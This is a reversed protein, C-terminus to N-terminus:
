VEIGFAARIVYGLGFSFAAVGCSLGLMELFRSRFPYGKAVAMYFTFLLIILVANAMSIGLCAYPNRLIAYPAVLLFVTAIYAMGTYLASRLPTQRESNEARQSLFESAAMSLSASVGTVVGAAAIIETRQFAFTFGALAGTLEVLADNLGLVVSSLYRLREEDIMDLLSNEHEEEERAIKALEPIKEAARRYAAQARDEGLEMLKLGFTLGFIKAISVCLASRIRSANVDQETYRRLVQYHALEEASIRKLVEANHADSVDRALRAYIEHETIETRQASLLIARLESDIEILEDRKLATNDMTGMTVVIVRNAPIELHLHRDRKDRAM